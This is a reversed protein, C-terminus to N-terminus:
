GKDVVFRGDIMVMRVNEPECRHIIASIIDRNPSINPANKDIFAIDAKRDKEICGSNLGFAEAANLTAMRLLEKAPIRGMSTRSTFELERWMNPASIMVNDTGLCVNIGHEMMAKVDPIGANLAANARPCVVVPIKKKAIEQLDDETAHTAHVIVDPEHELAKGVEGDSEGAHLAIIGGKRDIPIQGTQYMNLGLGDVDEIPMDRGLIVAKMPINDLAEELEEVGEWGFERFDVLRTIGSLLMYEISDRMAAVRVKRDSEDYLRWKLGKKGVADRVSLGWCAEKAFSDGVHTHANILGPIAIYEKLDLGDGAFGECVGMILGDEVTIHAEELFEIGKGFIASCNIQM